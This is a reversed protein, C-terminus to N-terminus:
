SELLFRAVADMADGFSKRDYGAGSALWDTHVSPAHSDRFHGVVDLHDAPGCWLLEGWLQSRTPVVGDCHHPEPVFGLGARLREVLADSVEPLPYHPHPRSTVAFITGYIARSLADYVTKVSAAFSNAKPAPSASVLCGYRVGPADDASANFLDMSEPSIQLIGGQDLRIGELWERVEVQGREGVFRLLVDTSKELVRLDLGLAEDIGGVAALLSSAATLPPGSATLTTVTLLSLAYLLRTGSVTAFFQALPTGYHPTNISVISALRGRFAGSTELYGLNVGPTALLRADLGGTSHGVLHIPGDDTGCSALITEALVRSRRRISATPPTPVVELGWRVGAADFRAGIERRVHEFYDYGALRGFGFMGPVLYVRHVRAM